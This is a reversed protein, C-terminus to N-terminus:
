SVKGPPTIVAPDPKTSGPSLEEELPASGPPRWPVEYMKVALRIGKVLADPLTLCTAALAPDDRQLHKHTTESIIIRGRGSLSELRSALNVERGFVTYNRTEVESGMLGAMATGSNIGSGLSLVPLLPLPPLGSAARTANEAKRRKNEESRRCNLEYIARQAEIAARVCSTAHTPNSTPAGWFAMVCDGIFKDLTADHKIITDAVLGLYLSVTSLAERAQEDFHAEADKGSLKNEEVYAAAREQTMETFETFGRVDAFLVSVERRAGGLSLNEANLLEDMIKPSVVTSFIAKIRRREAQEFIVRWTVVCLHTMMLGGGIPLIM